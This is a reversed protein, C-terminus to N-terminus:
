YQQALEKPDRQLQAIANGMTDAYAVAASALNGKM